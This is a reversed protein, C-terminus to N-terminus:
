PFLAIGMLIIMVVFAVFAITGWTWPHKYPDHPGGRPRDEALEGQDPRDSAYFEADTPYRNRPDSFARPDISEPSGM